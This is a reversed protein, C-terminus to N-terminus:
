CGLIGELENNDISEAIILGNGGEVFQFVRIRDFGSIKIIYSCAAQWINGKNKSLLKDVIEFKPFFVNSDEFKKEFELYILDNLLYINLYYSDEKIFVEMLVRENIDDLVQHVAKNISAVYNPFYDTLINWLNLGLCDSFDDCLWEDCNESGAVLNFENDTILLYGFEQIGESLFMHEDKILVQNNM